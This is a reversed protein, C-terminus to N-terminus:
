KVPEIESLRWSKDFFSQTPSYLRLITFWGKHPTTQIWNSAPIGTPREPAFYVITNGNADAIAAPTPFGQSGARPFRQPTDLMSRTQNDYVTLSWFRAQPIGKPLTVKYTHGGDLPAKDADVTTALYQSGVGPLRMIMAPTIGTAVYFFASRSDLKRAGEEPLPHVKLDKTIMPPPTQFEYGGTWMSTMWSSGPYYSWNESARPAFALARATANALAVGDALVKKMRADPTFPQGHVIGVSAIPGLLEPDASTAPERQVVANLMDYFIADSPPITNLALGTGEHFVTPPPTGPIGLPYNGTLIDAVSTGEGGPVYHYIKVSKRILDATPKPDDNKIFARGLLGVRVTRAHAVNYVGTPLPGTYDPGVILYKGGLGRDPGASGLDVVFRFWSDDITGLTGAPVEVAIPGKSLDLFSLFYVTDCNATLFLSKADTFGSYLLVENDKVGADVFGQHAAESSVAQFTNLFAEEAHMTDLADYLKTATAPTPVGDHFTLEGLPSAVHDPTVLSLPTTQAQATLAAALLALTPFRLCPM